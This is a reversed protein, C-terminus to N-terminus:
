SGHEKSGEEQSSREQWFSIVSVRVPNRHSPKGEETLCLNCYYEDKQNNEENSELTKGCSQCKKM